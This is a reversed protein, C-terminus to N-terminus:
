STRDDQPRGHHIRLNWVSIPQRLDGRIARLRSFGPVVTPEAHFRVALTYLDSAYMNQYDAEAKTIFTPSIDFVLSLSILGAVVAFIVMTGAFPTVLSSAAFYPYLSAPLFIAFIFLVSEYKVQPERGSRQICRWIKRM